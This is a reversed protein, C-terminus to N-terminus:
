AKPTYEFGALTHVTLDSAIDHADEVLKVGVQGIWKLSDAKIKLTYDTEAPSDTLVVDEVVIDEAQLDVGTVAKFLPLLAVSSIVGNVAGDNPVHLTVPTAQELTTLQTALDLRKYNFTVEGGFGVAAVGKVKVTTNYPQGEVVVPAEHSLNTSSYATTSSPNAAKILDILQEFNTKAM